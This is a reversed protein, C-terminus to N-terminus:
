ELLIDSLRYDVLVSHLLLLLELSLGIISPTLPPHESLRLCFPVEM